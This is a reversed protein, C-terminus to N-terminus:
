IFCTLFPILEEIESLIYLHITLFVCLEFSIKQEFNKSVSECFFFIIQLGTPFLSTAIKLYKRLLNKAVYALMQLMLLYACNQVARDYFTAM